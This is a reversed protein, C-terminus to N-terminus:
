TREYVLLYVNEKAIEMMQSAHVERVRLDNFEVWTDDSDLLCFAVYHGRNASGFHVVVGTLRYDVGTKSKDKPNLVFPDLTLGIPPFEVPSKIKLASDFEGVRNVHILLVEPQQGM